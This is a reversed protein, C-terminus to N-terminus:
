CQSVQLLMKSMMTRREERIQPLIFKFIAYLVSHVCFLFLFIYSSPVFLNSSPANTFLKAEPSPPYSHCTRPQLFTHVDMWGDMCVYMRAHMCVYM